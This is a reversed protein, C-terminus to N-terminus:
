SFVKLLEAKIKMIEFKKLITDRLKQDIDLLHEKPMNLILKM